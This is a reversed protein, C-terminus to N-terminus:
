AVVEGNYEVGDLLRGATKKGVRYMQMGAHGDIITFADQWDSSGGYSLPLTDVRCTRGYCEDLVAQDQGPKALRNSRYLTEADQARIQSVPLWEGWQKFFFATGSAACQDRLGRVWDPHMPRAQGGSEGGVILLDIGALWERLDLASLLPEASLFRVGAPAALLKPIDRVAETQNCVTAGLWVTEPVGDPFMLPLYRGANGIRKSLLLWDLNPTGRILAGLDQRWDDTIAPHNDFVDALSACFVRARKGAAQAARNWRLPQRWNAASTRRRQGQWLEPTGARKAWGEAYCHDCAPSVKACGVWSNFTHNTWEISSNEAM